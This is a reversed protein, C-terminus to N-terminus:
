EDPFVSMLFKQGSKKDEKIQVFFLDNECTAGAFRHLIEDEKNPNEKSKPEFHSNRILELAAPFYKLRRLRDRWNQGNFHHDWFPGLFIKDKRFYASRVYPRRKTKKKIEEYFNYARKNVEHFDTGTLKAMKTRYIKM